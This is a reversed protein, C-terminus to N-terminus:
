KPARERNNDNGLFGFLSGSGLLETARKALVGRRREGELIIPIAVKWIEVTPDLALAVGEQLKVALASSIFAQNVMVHHMAAADCITTIYSGLHEMLYDPGAAKTTMGEIKQIFLEENLAQEKTGRLRFNSDEIMLGGARRGNKRIFAALIDSFILFFNLAVFINTIDNWFFCIVGFISHAYRILGHDRDTNEICIGVDLLVFKNDPSVLINGPHLDGQNCYVHWFFWM